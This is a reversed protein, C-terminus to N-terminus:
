HVVILYLDKIWQASDEFGPLVISLSPDNFAVLCEACARADALAIEATYGDVATLTLTTASEAPQVLDLLTNLLVGEYTQSGKKPHDATVEIVEFALMEDMSWTIQEAVAGGITFTWADETPVPVDIVPAPEAVPVEATDAAAEIPQMDSFDLSISAIQGVKQSGELDPGVLRLPFYKDELAEDNMLYAVIIDNDDAIESSLFSTSFGDVATITVTYNAAALERNFAASEHQNEDDVWGVLNWLPIGSWKRGDDDMYVALHCNPSAAIEFNARDITDSIYGDLQLDWEEGVSRLEIQNIFKISWHGDTVQMPDQNVLYIRLNGETDPILAAGEKAYAVLVKLTETTTSEVGTAPDYVIFDGNTIQNYSFTMAYGDRATMRVSVEPSLEGVLAVLEEIIVGTLETPPTIRGTSSKGGGWGTYSPLEHIEDMSLATVTGDLAIIELIVEAETVPEAAPEEPVPTDTGQCSVLAIALVILLLTSRFKM